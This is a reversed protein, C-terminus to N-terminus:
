RNQLQRNAKAGMADTGSKVGESIYNRFGTKGKLADQAERAAAREAELRMLESGIAPIGSLKAMVQKLIDPTIQPQGPIATIGGTGLGSLMQQVLPLMQANAVTTQAEAGSKESAIKAEDMRVGRDYDAPQREQLFRKGAEEIEAVRQLIPALQIAQNTQQTTSATGANTAAVNAQGQEMQIPLMSRTAETGTRTADLQAQEAARRAALDGGANELGFAGQGINVAAALQQLQQTRLDNAQRAQANPGLNDWLALLEGISIRPKKAM